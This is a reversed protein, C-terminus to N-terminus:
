ETAAEILELLAQRLAATDLGIDRLVVTGSNEKALVGLLLHETGLYDHQLVRAEFFSDKLVEKTDAAFAPNNLDPINFPANGFADAVSTRVEGLDIGLSSLADEASIPETAPKRRLAAERLQSATAGARALVQGALGAENACLAVVLHDPGIFHGDAAALGGAYGLVSQTRPTFRLMSM